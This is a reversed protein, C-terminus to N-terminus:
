SFYIYFNFTTLEDTHAKASTNQCVKQDLPTLLHSQFISFSSESHTLRKKYTVTKGFAKKKMQFHPLSIM